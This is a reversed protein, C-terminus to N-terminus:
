EDVKLWYMYALLWRTKKVFVIFARWLSVCPSIFGKSLHNLPQKKLEILEALDMWYSLISVSMMDLEVDIDFEINHNFSLSFINIPFVCSFERVVLNSELFLIDVSTDHVNSLYSMCRNEEFQLVRILLIVGMAYPYQYGDVCNNPYWAHVFHYDQFLFEFDCSLSITLELLFYWWFISGKNIIDCGSCTSISVWLCLQESVQCACFSLRPFSIWFWMLFLYDIWTSLVM